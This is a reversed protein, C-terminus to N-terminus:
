SDNAISKILSVAYLAATETRLRATGLDVSKIGISTAKEIENKSFDGEPGILINIHDENYSKLVSNLSIRETRDECHAMFTKSTNLKELCESIRKLEHVKPLYVRESQKMASLAIKELRDIRLKKRESHDTLIFHISRLGLEVSKEVLWEMRSINKTPAIYLNLLEQRESFEEDLITLRCTSRNLEVIEANYSHGKGDLVRVQDGIQKRLVRSLHQIEEEFIQLDGSDNKYGYFSQV